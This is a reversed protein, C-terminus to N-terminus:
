SLEGRRRILRICQNIAEDYPPSDIKMGEIERICAEREMKVILEAFVQRFRRMDEGVSMEIALLWAKEVPTM